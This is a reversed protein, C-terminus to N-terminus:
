VTWVRQSILSQCSVGVHIYFSLCFNLSSFSGYHFRFLHSLVFGFHAVQVWETYIRLPTLCGFEEEIDVPLSDHIKPKLTLLIFILVCNLLTWSPKQLIYFVSNQGTTTKWNEMRFKPLYLNPILSDCRPLWFRFCLWLNQWLSHPLLLKREQFARGRLDRKVLCEIKGIIRGDSQFLVNFTVCGCVHPM